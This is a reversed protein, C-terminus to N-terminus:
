PEVVQGKEEVRFLNRKLDYEMNQTGDPNLYYTFQVMATNSNIVDFQIDGHIKGYLAGVIKGDVKVTRVRFFYNQDKRTTATSQRYWRPEYGDQPANYPLRLASGHLPDAYVSQIGDGDHSFIIVLNAQYDTKSVFPRDLKFVFDSHKGKGHPAVWDFATLDFGIFENSFPLSIRAHQAYM